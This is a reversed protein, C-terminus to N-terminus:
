GDHEGGNAILGALTGILEERAARRGEAIRDDRRRNQAVWADAVPSMGHKNLYAQNDRQWDLQADERVRLRAQREVEFAARVATEAENRNM